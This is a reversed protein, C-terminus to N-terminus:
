SQKKRTSWGRIFLLTPFWRQLKSSNENVFSRWGSAWFLLTRRKWNRCSSLFGKTGPFVTNGLHIVFNNSQCVELNTTTLPLNWTSFALQWTAQEQSGKRFRLTCILQSTTEIWKLGMLWTFIQEWPQLSVYLIFVSGGGGDGWHVWKWMSGHKTGGRLLSM